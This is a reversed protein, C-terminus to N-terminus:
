RPAFRPSYKQLWPKMLMDEKIVHNLLWDRLFATFHTISTKTWVDGLESRVVVLGEILADHSIHLQESQPYDVAKALQEERQFHMQGYRGLEDLLSPLLTFQSANLCAEAKNIIELLYQHDSDIMDNGVSFQERWQIPM